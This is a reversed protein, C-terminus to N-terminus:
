SAPSPAPTPETTTAPAVPAALPATGIAGEPAEFFVRATGGMTVVLGAEPDEEGDLMLSDLRLARDLDYIRRIFDQLAFYDGKAGLTIRVEAVAAGEPPTKPLEPTVQVFDVGAQDAADQVQFVLNAVQDDQPILERIEALRAEFRPANAQLAQLEELRTQLAVTESQATEVQGQVKVLEAQRARVFLFFFAGCAVAVAVGALILKARHGKM